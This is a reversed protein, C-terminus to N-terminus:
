DSPRGSRILHALTRRGLRLGDLYAQETDGPLTGHAIDSRLAYISAATNGIWKNDGRDRGILQRARRSLQAGKGRSADLEYMVELAIAVDIIKDYAGHMGARSLSSALRSLALRLRVDDKPMMSYLQACDSLSDAAVTPTTPPKVGFGDPRSMDQLRWSFHPVRGVLREVLREVGQTRWGSSTVPLEHTVAMLDVLLLADDRSSEPWEGWDADYGLPVLFPGWKVETVVAGIPGEDIAGNRRLLSRVMEESMYQRAEEFSIISLENSFNYRSEVHLGRFLVISYSTLDQDEGRQISHALAHAASEATQELAYDVLAQLMFIMQFGDVRSVGLDLGLIWEDNSLGAARAIAPHELLVELLTRLRRSIYRRYESAHNPQNPDLLSYRSVRQRVNDRSDQSAGGSIGFHMEMRHQVLLMESELHREYSVLAQLCDVLKGIWDSLLFETQSM